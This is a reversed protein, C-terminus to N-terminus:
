VASCCNQLSVTAPEIGATPVLIRLRPLDPHLQNDMLAMPTRIGEDEGLYQTTASHRRLPNCGRTHRNSEPGYMWKNFQRMLHSNFHYM